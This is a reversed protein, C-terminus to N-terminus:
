FQFKCKPCVHQTEVTDEDLDKFVPKGSSGTKSGNGNGSDDDREPLRLSRITLPDLGTLEVDFKGKQLKALVISLKEKDWEGGHANAAINAAMEMQKSSWDVIRLPIRFTKNESKVLIHGLAVTGFEDKHPSTEVKTQKGKLTKLRQHGSVVVNTAKNIVVGSLDGLKAMSRELEALRRDSISRPNYSAPKFDKITITRKESTKNM